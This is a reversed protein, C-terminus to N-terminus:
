IKIGRIKIIRMDLAAKIEDRTRATTSNAKSHINFIIPVHVQNSSKDQGLVVIALKAESQSETSDIKEYPMKFLAYKENNEENENARTLILQGNYVAIKDEYLVITVKVNSKSV